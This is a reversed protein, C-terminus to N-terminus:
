ADQVGSQEADSIARDFLARAAKDFARSQREHVKWNTAQGISKINANHASCSAEQFLELALGTLDGGCSGGGVEETAGCASCKPALGCDPHLLMHINYRQKATYNFLPEAARLQEVTTM